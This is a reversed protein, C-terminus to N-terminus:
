CPDSRGTRQDGCDVIDNKETMHFSPKYDSM